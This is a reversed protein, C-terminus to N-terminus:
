VNSIVAISLAIVSLSYAAILLVGDRATLALSFLAIASAPLAALFPVIEMPPIILSLLAMCAASIKVSLNTFLHECRKSIIKDIRNVFGMVKNKAKVFKDRKISRKRLFKPLWPGTNGLLMQASFIFIVIACVTPVMPIAGTPLIATLAVIFILPGFGQSELSATIDGLTLDGETEKDIEELLDYISASESM